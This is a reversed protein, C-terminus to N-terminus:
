CRAIDARSARNDATLSRTRWDDPAIEQPDFDLEVDVGNPDVFFLQWMRFPAPTRIIRHAIGREELLRTTALLGQARYAMHDLAGRRPEPMHTVEIVHLIPQEAAYLWAGPVGFDPRAGVHLGLMAYFALTEDLRDTVITFHDMRQIQM